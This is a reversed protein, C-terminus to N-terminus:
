RSGLSPVLRPLGAAFVAVVMVGGSKAVVGHGCVAFLWVSPKPKSSRM